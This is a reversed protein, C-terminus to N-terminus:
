HAWVLNSVWLITLLYFQQEIVNIKPYYTVYCYVLSIFIPVLLPSINYGIGLIICYQSQSQTAGSTQSLLPSIIGSFHFSVLPVAIPIQVFKLLPKLM